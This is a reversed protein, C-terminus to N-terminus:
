LCSVGVAQALRGSLQRVAFCIGTYRFVENVYVVRGSKYIVIFYLFSM